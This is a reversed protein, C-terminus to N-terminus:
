VSASVVWAISIKKPLFIEGSIVLGLIDAISSGMRMKEGVTILGYTLMYFRGDEDEGRSYDVWIGAYLVRM